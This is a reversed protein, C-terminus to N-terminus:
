PTRDQQLRPGEVGPPKSSPKGKVPGAGRGDVGALVALLRADLALRECAPSLDIVPDFCEFRCEGTVVDPQWRCRLNKVDIRDQYRTLLDNAEAAAAAVEAPDFLGRLVVFGDEDWARRHTATAAPPTLLTEPM